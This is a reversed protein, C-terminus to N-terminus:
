SLVKLGHHFLTSVKAWAEGLLLHLLLLAPIILNQYLHCLVKQDIKKNCIIPGLRVWALTFFFFCRCAWLVGWFTHENLELWRNRMTLKMAKQTMSSIM